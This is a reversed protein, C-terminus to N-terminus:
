RAQMNGTSQVRRGIVQLANQTDIKELEFGLLENANAEAVLAKEEQGESRLFDSYTGHAIYNYWEAPIDSEETDADGYEVQLQALYTVFASEPNLHGAILTCGDATVSYDFDQTSRDVYPAERHVRLFSDISQKDTEEYPILYDTVTREEGVVLFRPWYNTSRYAKYARRNVMAKIRPLELSTFTVGCLAEILTILSAYTKTQM